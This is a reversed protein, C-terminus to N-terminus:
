QTTNSIKVKVTKVVPILNTYAIGCDYSELMKTEQKFNDRKMVRISTNVSEGTALEDPYNFIVIQKWFHENLVEGDITDYYVSCIVGNKIFDDATIKSLNWRYEEGCSDVL